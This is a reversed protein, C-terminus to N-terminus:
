RNCSTLDFKDDDLVCSNVYIRSELQHFGKKQWHFKLSSFKMSLQNVALIMFCCGKFNQIYTYPINLLLWMCLMSFIHVKEYYIEVTARSAISIFNSYLISSLKIFEWYKNRYFQGLTGGELIGYVCFNKRYSIKASCLYLLLIKTIINERIVPEDHFPLM